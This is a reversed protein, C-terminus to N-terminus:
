FYKLGFDFNYQQSFIKKFIEFFQSWFIWCCAALVYCLWEVILCDVDDLM